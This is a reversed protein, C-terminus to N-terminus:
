WDVEIEHVIMAEKYGYSGGDDLLWEPIWEAWGSRIQLLNINVYFIKPALCVLLEVDYM